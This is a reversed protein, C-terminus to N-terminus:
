HQTGNWILDVVFIGIFALVCGIAVFVCEVINLISAVNAKSKADEYNRDILKQSSCIFVTSIIPMVLFLIAGCTTLTAIGNLVLLIISSTKVSGLTKLSFENNLKKKDLIVKVFLCIFVIMMIIGIISCLLLISASEVGFSPTNLTTTSSVAFPEM